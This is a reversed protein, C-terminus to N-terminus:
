TAGRPADPPLPEFLLVVVREYLEMILAQSVQEGPQSLLRAFGQQLPRLLEDPPYQSLHPISQGLEDQHLLSTDSGQRFASAFHEKVREVTTATRPLPAELGMTRGIFGALAAALEALLQKRNQQDM